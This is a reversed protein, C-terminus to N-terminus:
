RLLTVAADLSRWFDDNEFPLKSLEELSLSQIIPDSPVVRAKGKQPDLRAVIPDRETSFNVICLTGADKLWFIDLEGLKAGLKAYHKLLRNVKDIDM